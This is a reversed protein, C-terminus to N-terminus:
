PCRPGDGASRTTHCCRRTAPTEAAGPCRRTSCRWRGCRPARRPSRASGPGCRRSRSTVTSPAPAVRSRILWMVASFVTCPAGPASSPRTRGRRGRGCRSRCAARTPSAARRPGRRRVGRGRRYVGPHDLQGPQQAGGVAAVLQAVPRGVHPDDAAAFARRGPRLQARQLLGVAPAVLQEGGVGGAPLQREEFGAVAGVGAHLVADAAPLGGAEVMERGGRHCILWPRTHPRSWRRPGATSAVVARGPGIGPRRRVWSAASGADQVGGDPDDAALAFALDFDRLGPGPGSSSSAANWAANARVAGVQGAVVAGRGRGSSGWRGTSGAGGSAVTPCELWSWCGFRLDSVSTFIVLAPRPRVQVGPSHDLDGHNGGRGDAERSCADAEVADM